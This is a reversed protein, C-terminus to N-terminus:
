RASVSGSDGFPFFHFEVHGVDGQLEMPHTWFLQQALPVNSSVTCRDQMLIPVIELHYFRAEVQADDGSAGDPADLVIQLGQYM